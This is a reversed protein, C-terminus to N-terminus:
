TKENKKTTIGSWCHHEDPKKTETKPSYDEKRDSANIRIVGGM